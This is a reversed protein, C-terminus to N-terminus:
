FHISIQPTLYHSVKYVLGFKNFLDYIMDPEFVTNNKNYIVVLLVPSKKVQTFVKLGGSKAAAQIM